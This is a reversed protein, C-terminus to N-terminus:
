GGNDNSHQIKVTASTGTFAFVQLYFQGGFAGPSVSGLDLGAGNAAGGDTRKGATLMRGWEIGYGNGQMTSAFTFMGDAARTPDYNNQKHWVSLVPDGLNTGVALSALQDASSLPSLRAHAMNPAPDFFATVDMSGDRLGPNRVMAFKTIPTFPLMAQPCACKWQQIDDGLDFGSLWFQQGLGNQKPM